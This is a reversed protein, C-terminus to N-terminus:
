KAGGVPIIFRLIKSSIFLRSKNLSELNAKMRVKNNELFYEIDGGKEAFNSVSSVTLVSNAVLQKKEREFFTLDNREVYFIHCKKLNLSDTDYQIALTKGKILHEGAKVDNIYEALESGSNICINFTPSKTKETPWTTFESLHILYVAKLQSEPVSETDANEPNSAANNEVLFVCIILLIKLFFCKKM